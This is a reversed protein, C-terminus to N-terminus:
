SASIDGSFQPYGAIGICVCGLLGRRVRSPEVMDEGRFVQPSFIDSDCWDEWTDLDHDGVSECDLDDGGYYVPMGGVTEFTNLLDPDSTNLHDLSETM